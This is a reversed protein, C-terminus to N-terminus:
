ERVNTVTLRRLTNERPPESGPRSSAALDFRSLISVAQPPHFPDLLVCVDAPAAAANDRSGQIM